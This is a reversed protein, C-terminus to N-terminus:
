MLVAAAFYNAMAVRCSARSEETTLIPDQAIRDIAASQTLLGVHYAVHLSRSGRKLVESLMLVKRDPDYRKLAGRMASAEQMVVDVGSTKKLHRVLGAFMSERDLHADRSLREAGEELEPFYNMKEQLLDSVEESPFRSRHLGEVAEQSVAEAMEQAQERARCFTEYLRIVAQSATPYAAAMERIDQTILNLNDFMPDGFVEFLETIMRGSHEPSFSKLDIPLIEGLKILLDASLVRRDHEILNLYSPSIGLRRALETQSLHQQRRLARLRAGLAVVRENM